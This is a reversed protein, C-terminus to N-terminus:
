HRCYSWDIWWQFGISVKGHWTDYSNLQQVYQKITAQYGHAVETINLGKNSLFRSFTFLQSVLAFRPCYSSTLRVRHQQRSLTSIGVIRHTSFHVIRQYVRANLVKTCVKWGSLTGNLPIRKVYFRSTCWNYGVIYYIYFYVKKKIHCELREVQLM